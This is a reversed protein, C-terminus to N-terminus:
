MNLTERDVEHKRALCEQCPIALSCWLNFWLSSVNFPYYKFPSYKWYSYNWYSLNSYSLNRDIPEKLFHGTISHVYLFLRDNGWKKSNKGNVVEEFEM